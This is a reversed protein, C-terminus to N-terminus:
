RLAQPTVQVVADNAGRRYRVAVVSGVRLKACAMQLEIVSRVPELAVQIIVDGVTLGAREAASNKVFRLIRAGDGTDETQVGLAADGRQVTDDVTGRALVWKRWRQEITQLPEHFVRELATAGSEDIDYTLIYEAFFSEAKKERALFEFISRVQPYLREADEMFTAASMSLLSRWSQATTSKVQKRAFNHRMNPRFSFNGQEDRDYDEYLSALGEQIWIPHRQGSREMFAFHMLHVFEHQLSSGTDRTVLRRPGHEYMGRVADTALYQSADAERLVAVLVERRPMEGFYASALHDALQELMLRMRAHSSESLTTAYWLGRAADHEYRYADGHKGKFTELSAPARLPKDRPSRPATGAAAEMIATYTPHARLRELDPDSEMLRFDRFGAKVCALLQEAALDLKDMQALACADNYLLTTDSRHHQLQVSIAAHAEEWRRALLLQEISPALVGSRSPPPAAHSSGVPLLLCVLLIACRVTVGTM